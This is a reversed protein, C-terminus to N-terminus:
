GIPPRKEQKICAPTIYYLNSSFLEHVVISDIIEEGMKALNTALGKNCEEVNIVEREDNELDSVLPEKSGTTGLSVGIFFIIIIILCNVIRRNM